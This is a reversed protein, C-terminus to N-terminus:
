SYMNELEIRGLERETLAPVYTNWRDLTVYSERISTKGTPISITHVEGEKYKCRLSDFNELTVDEKNVSIPFYDSRKEVYTYSYHVRNEWKNYSKFTLIGESGKSDVRKHAIEPESYVGLMIETAVVANPTANIIEILHEINVNTFKATLAAKVIKEV